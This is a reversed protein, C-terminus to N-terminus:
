AIGWEFAVGNDVTPYVNTADYSIDKTIYRGSGVPYEIKIWAKCGAPIAALGHPIAQESGTGTSSGSADTPYGFCNAIKIDGTVVITMDTMDFDRIVCDVCDLLEMEQNVCQLSLRGGNILLGSVNIGEIGHNFSNEIVSAIHINALKVDTGDINVARSVPNIPLIDQEIFVNSISARDGFLILPCHWASSVWNNINRLRINSGIFDTAGSQVHIGADNYGDIVFNNVTVCAAMVNIGGYCNFVQCNNYQVNKMYQHTDFASSSNQNYGAVVVDSININYSKDGTIAHRTRRVDGHSISIWNSGSETSIGYGLNNPTVADICSNIDFEHIGARYCRRLLLCSYGYVDGFFINQLHADSTTDLIINSSKATGSLQEDQFLINCIVPSDIMSSVKKCYSVGGIVGWVLPTEIIVVDDIIDYVRNISTYNISNLEMIEIYDGIVLSSADTLTINMGGAGITDVISLQTSSVTGGITLSPAVVSAGRSIISTEGSGILQIGSTKSIPTDIVLKTSPRILTSGCDLSASLVTADDTGAVGSAIKRGNSDEAVVESGEIYVIADYDGRSPQRKDFKPSNATIVM